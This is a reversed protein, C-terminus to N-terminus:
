GAAAGLSSPLASRGCASTGSQGVRNAAIVRFERRRNLWYTAATRLSAIAATMPVLYLWVPIHGMGFFKHLVPGSLLICALCAASVILAILASLFALNIAEEDEEPLMIALEYRGTAGAGIILCWAAYVSFIGFADPAYMRTLFPAILM